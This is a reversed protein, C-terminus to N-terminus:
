KIGSISSHGEGQHATYLDHEGKRECERLSNILINLHPCAIGQPQCKKVVLWSSQQFLFAIRVEFFVSLPALEKNLPTDDRFLFDSTKLTGVLKKELSYVM